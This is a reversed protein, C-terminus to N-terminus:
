RYEDAGIDYASGQPRLDGDVDHGTTTPSMVAADIATSGAGLHYDGNGVFALGSADAEIISRAFMCSGATNANTATPDGQLTNRAIINAWATFGATDSCYVGGTAAGGGLKAGNDVITNYDLISGPMISTANIYIGGVSNMMQTGNGVIFSNTIAFSGATQIATGRNNQFTSRDIHLIGTANLAVSNTCGTVTVHTLWVQANTVICTQFTLDHIDANTQINLQNGGSLAAGPEGFITVLRNGSITSLNTITGRVRIYPRGTALADLMRYCPTAMTCPTTATAGEVLWAVDGDAACTGDDLCASTPCDAQVTCAAQADAPPSDISGDIITGPAPGNLGYIQSCGCLAILALAKM